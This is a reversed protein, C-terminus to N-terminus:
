ESCTIGSSAPLEALVKVDDTVDMVLMSGDSLCAALTSAQAPNWKMDQVLTGSLIDPHLSAFPLKQSAQFFFFIVVNFHIFYILSM